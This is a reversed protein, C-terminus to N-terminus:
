GLGMVEAIKRALADPKFPKQIYGYDSPFEGAQMERPDAYGSMCLVKLAPRSQRIRAALQFGNMGPMIVDTMLLTIAAEAPRAMEIATQASDAEVVEHGLFRLLGAISARVNPEDEVLLVTERGMSIPAEFAQDAEAPRAPADVRPLLIKFTSGSGPESHVWIHGGSQRVIGFVSALGLGSGKGREKTTFFPEFIHAQTEYDMGVGTDSVTLCVYPGPVGAQTTAFAADLEVNGTAITLSGGAPMADRANVVLNLIVQEVQGPDVRVSGLTASLETIVKIHEGIARQLMSVMDRVLANLDILKPQLVQRGGTALLQTTLASAHEAAGIIDRLYARLRDPQLEDVNDLMRSMMTASGIIVVLNNNFDHAIGGALRGIAEVRQLDELQTQLQSRKRKKRDKKM